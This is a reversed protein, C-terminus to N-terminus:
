CTPGLQPCAFIPSPPRGPPFVRRCNQGFCMRYPSAPGLPVRRRSTPEARHGNQHKPAQSCGAPHRVDFVFDTSVHLIRANIRKCAEALYQVGKENVEYTLEVEDEAKDVATYAAANIVLDPLENNLFTNVSDANTINLESKGVCLVTYYDPILQELEWALQGGKGTIIIKM